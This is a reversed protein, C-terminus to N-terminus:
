TCYPALGPPACLGFPACATPRSRLVGTAAPSRPSASAAARVCAPGPALSAVASYSPPSSAAQDVSVLIAIAAIIIPTCASRRVCAAFGHPPAFRRDCRGCGAASVAEEARWSITLCTALSRFNWRAKVVHPPPGAELVLRRVATTRRWGPEAVLQRASSPHQDSATTSRVVGGCFPSSGDTWQAIPRAAAPCARM